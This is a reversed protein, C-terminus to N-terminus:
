QTVDGQANLVDFVQRLSNLHVRRWATPSSNSNHPALLVNDLRRLPSGDPLPEDEYVDLAVGGISGNRLADALAREDIVPGRACNILVADPKMRDLAAADILHRSTPNLDVNLSVYDSRSLLTDLDVMEVGLDGLDGDEVQRIDNGLLAAGFPRARRLVAMGIAGVGVVGITSEGLSRGPIKHWRGSKMERDMWPLSRAFCLMYGLVTDAVPETFADPTRGVAIGREAAAGLDISDVGTGWKCIVKLRPAADMVAATIRDDGCIIADADGIVPLLEEEELRERVDVVRYAADNEEFVPAFEHVVPAMYPASVLVNWTM